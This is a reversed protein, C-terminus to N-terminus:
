FEVDVLVSSNISYNFNLPRSCKYFRMVKCKPINLQLYNTDCFREFKTLDEQVAICDEVTNVACFLKLDDAYLLCKCKNFISTASNVFLLFLIPGLHSGQPVGSTVNIERSIVGGIKVAQKRDALYSSIWNIYLPSLGMASLKEILIGHCVRDFAKRLDTYIVDVQAGKEIHQM